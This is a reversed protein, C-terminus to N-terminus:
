KGLRIQYSASPFFILSSGSVFGDPGFPLNVSLDFSQRARNFRIGAGLKGFSFGFRSVVLLNESIFTLSARLKRVVSVSVVQGFSDRNTGTGLGFTVNNQPDGVSVIGQFLGTSTSRDLLSGYLLQAQLGVRIKPSLPVSVKTSVSGFLSPLFTLFSVGVSWNDTIGVDFQSIYVLTNRFYVRGRGAQYATSLFNLYQPFLNPYGASGVARPNTVPAVSGAREMRLVQDAPVYVTGITTTKLVIRSADQSLVEGNLTTGDTLTVVYQGPSITAQAPQTAQPRAYAPQTFFVASDDAVPSFGSIQSFLEREVYTLQGNKMRVTYMISDRKVIRGQIHSGDKLLIFYSKGGTTDVPVQQAAACFAGTLLIAIFLLVTKMSLM